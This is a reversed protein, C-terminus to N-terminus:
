ESLSLSHQTVRTRARTRELGSGGVAGAWPRAPDFTRVKAGTLLLGIM